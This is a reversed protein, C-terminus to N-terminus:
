WKIRKGVAFTGKGVAVSPAVKAARSGLFMMLGGAFAVAMGAGGLAKNTANAEGFESYSGNENNIFGYLAMTMGAGFVVAGGVVETKALGSTRRVQDSQSDGAAATAAAASASEKLDGATAAGAISTTLMLILAVRLIRM